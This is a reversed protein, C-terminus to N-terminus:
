QRLSPMITSHSQFGLSVQLIRGDLEVAHLSARYAPSEGFCDVIQLQPNVGARDHRIMCVQDGPPMWSVYRVNGSEHLSGASAAQIRFSQM